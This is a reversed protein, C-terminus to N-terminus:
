PGGMAQAIEQRVVAHMWHSDDINFHDVSWSQQPKPIKSVDINFIPTRPDDGRVPSGHFVGLSNTVYLNVCREVNSPVTTLPNSDLIVILKVPIGAQQYWRAVHLCLRGGMSHGVLVIPGRDAMALYEERLTAAPIVGMSPPAIQADYGANQLDGTLEDLGLSFVTFIGRFILVKGPPCPLSQADAALGGPLLLLSLAAVRISIRRANM